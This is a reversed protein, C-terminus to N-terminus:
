RVMGTFGQTEKVVGGVGVVGVPGTTGGSPGGSRGLTQDTKFRPM